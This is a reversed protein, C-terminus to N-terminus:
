MEFGRADELARPARGIKARPATARATAAERAVDALSPRKILAARQGREDLLCYVGLDKLRPADVLRVGAGAMESIPTARAGEIRVAVRVQGLDLVHDAGHAGLGDPEAAPPRTPDLQTTALDVILAPAEASQRAAPRVVVLEDAMPPAPGAGQAHASAAREATLIGVTRARPRFEADESPHAPGTEGAESKELAAQAAEAVAPAREAPVLHEGVAGREHGRDIVRSAVDLAIPAAQAAGLQATFGADVLGPHVRHMMDLAEPAVEHQREWPAVAGLGPRETAAVRELRPLALASPNHALADALREAVRPELGCASLATLRHMVLPDLDKAGGSLWGSLDARTDSGDRHERTRSSARARSRV